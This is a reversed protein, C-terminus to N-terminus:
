GWVILMLTKIVNGQDDKIINSSQLKARIRAIYDCSAILTKWLYGILDDNNMSASSNGFKYNKRTGKLYSYKYYWNQLNCWDSYTMLSSELHKNYLIVLDKSSITHFVLVTSTETTQNEASNYM